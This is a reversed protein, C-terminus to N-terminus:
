IQKIITELVRVFQQNSEPTGVSVRLCGQLLGEQQSLCRILIGQEKLAEYVQIAQYHARESATTQMRFLVFNADSPYICFAPYKHALQALQSILWQRQECIITAKYEFLEPHNLAETLLYQSLTNVNYPLRVKNIQEIWYSRGVLLGVRLGAFGLKSFTRMVLLNEYDNILHLFGQDKAFAYYAEDLVVLGASTQIIQEIVERKFSNGTPNNPYAIFTIVPQHTSVARLTAEIDLSFDECLDVSIYQRENAIAQIRYVSFSPNFSLVKDGTKGISMMLLTILEDSGNGFLLNETNVAFYNAVSQRLAKQYPDPYLNLAQKQLGAIIKADYEIGSWPSEMIDLKIGSFEEVADYAKLELIEPRILTNQGIMSM